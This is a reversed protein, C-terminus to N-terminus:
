FEGPFANTRQVHPGLFEPELQTAMPGCQSELRLKGVQQFLFDTKLYINKHSALGPLPIFTKGLVELAGPLSVLTVSWSNLTTGWPNHFWGGVTM